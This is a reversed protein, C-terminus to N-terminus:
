FGDFLADFIIWMHLVGNFFEFSREVDFFLQSYGTTLEASRQPDNHLLERTSKAYTFLPLVLRGLDCAICNIEQRLCM